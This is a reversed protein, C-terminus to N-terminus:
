EELEVCILEGKAPAKEKRPAKSHISKVELELAAGFGEELAKSNASAEEIGNLGEELAKSDTSAEFPESSDKGPSDSDPSEEDSDLSEPEGSM